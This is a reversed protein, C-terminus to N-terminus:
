FFGLQEGQNMPEWNKLSLGCAPNLQDIFKAILDPATTDGPQHIFFEVEELGLKLWSQLRAIWDSIRVDDTPHLDNGILRVMLRPTPLSLHLVDRRGAVDTIVVHAGATQMLDYYEDRLRHERFFAPHRVEVAISFGAPLQKLFRALDGLDEPAFTPPLQLFSMGLRNGLGMVAGVFEKVLSERGSLPFHHSIEQPFKPCFLLGEPTTAQWREITERDPIRYHTTNLEISNFQRAYHSLFDKPGTGNPYVKGLWTKAGWVPAGVGFRKLGHGRKLAQITRPDDQPLKFEIHALESPLVKGFEM